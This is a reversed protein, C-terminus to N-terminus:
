FDIFLDILCKPTQYQLEWWHQLNDTFNVCLFHIVYSYTSQTSIIQAICTGSATLKTCNQRICRRGDLVVLSPSIKLKFKCFPCEGCDDMLCGTCQGCARKRKVGWLTYCTLKLLGNVHIYTYMYMGYNNIYMYMYSRNSKFVFLVTYVQLQKVSHIYM